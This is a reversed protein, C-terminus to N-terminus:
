RDAINFLWNQIWIHLNDLFYLDIADVRFTYWKEICHQRMTKLNLWDHMGILIYWWWKEKHAYEIYKLKEQIYEPELWKKSIWVYKAAEKWEFLIRDKLTQNWYEDDVKNDSM